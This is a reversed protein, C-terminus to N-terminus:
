WHSHIIKSFNIAVAVAFEKNQAESDSKLNFQRHIKKCSHTIYANENLPLHMGVQGFIIM